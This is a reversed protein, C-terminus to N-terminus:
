GEKHKLAKLPATLRVLAGGEAGPGISFEGGIDAMRKRMNRLGNRTTQPDLGALGRGNDEIELTFREPELRLRVWAASAKAHRVINTVAEKAALFVNHRLEPPIPTAPLQTPIELRYRLGAVALYDQANKCIYTILGDLTDNSPNVTWVIEDLVRTTDRATQCIQQAHAEVEQPLDKDSEAMEGLLAVQTLSAGLQDHLDRAIRSRERELVEEHRLREVQRHLKQTSLYHVLAIIAGLLLAAAATLFWRTQWWAPVVVLSLSGGVPNWVGDENCATVQFRYQGPPLKSYRAIRTNGAETWDTEHNELRYKFRARDPAALNLSTYHIELGEKGAPLRVTQPPGAGLTNTNQARGQFLVTEIVVPPSHPNPKLQAPKVFALGKITPVWLTGDKGLCAGPQSGATCERTPLGDARGYARCSVVAARGEAFDNLAKKPARMLGANSGIWLNGQEDEVLYGLSNSALGERTTIRAWKGHALRGLGGGDTGIWLVGERDVWLSTVHESPLGDAKHFGTLRSDRLCFLGGGGTGFWLNGEADDAIARVDAPFPGISKWPTGEREDWCLAQGQAGFWLRGTRDQHLAFLKAYAGPGEPHRFLGDQLQFLGKILTGAWVRRDRDALVARVSSNSLGQGAGFRSLVGDKWWGVEFADPGITNFGIWIGGQDDACTSQVVLGRSEELVEFAQRTIRNLGGGDTGVWLSGERDVCLSLIYNYSLGGNTSLCTAQGESNFWFLGEGQTGVILNGQPDECAATVRTNSKWPYPIGERELRNTTWKQVLGDALRWFGGQRGALIFDIKGAMPMGFAEGLEPVGTEPAPSLPAVGNNAAVWVGGSADAFLQFGPDLPKYAMKGGSYRYLEGNATYLWVAGDADECIASLRRQPSPEGMPLSAVQGDKVLSVGGNETGIWLHGGRDEFLQIIRSSSLGPTNNEDYVTFSMGDFRVLGNLTALWLYGDRTQVISLVSNQPLGDDNEWKTISYPAGARALTSASAWPAALMGALWLWAVTMWWRYHWM